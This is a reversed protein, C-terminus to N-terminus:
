LYLQQVAFAEKWGTVFHEILPRSNSKWASRTDVVVQEFCDGSNKTSQDAVFHRRSAVSPVEVQKFLTKRHSM